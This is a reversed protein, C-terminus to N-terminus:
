FVGLDVTSTDAKQAPSVRLVCIIILAQHAGAINGRHCHIGYFEHVPPHGFPKISHVSPEVPHFNPKISHVSPEVPHLIPEVPHSSVNVSPEVVDVLIQIPDDVAQVSGRGPLTPRGDDALFLTKPIDKM